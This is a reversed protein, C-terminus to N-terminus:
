AAGRRRLVSAEATRIERTLEAYIADYFSALQGRYLIQLKLANQLSPVTRGREYSEITRTAAGIISAVQKTSLKRGRREVGLDNRWRNSLRSLSAVVNDKTM